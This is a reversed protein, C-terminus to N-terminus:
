ESTDLAHILFGPGGQFVHLRVTKLVEAMEDADLQVKLMPVEISSDQEFLIRKTLDYYGPKGIRLVHDGKYVEYGALPTTGVLIGDLEVLAPDADTSITLKIRPRSDLHTQWKEVAGVIVSISEDIAQEMLGMVEDESLVTTLQPTQRVRIQAAGDAIAIVEGDMTSQAELAVRMTIRSFEAHHGGQNVVEKGTSFSLITGRILADARLAQAANLVSPKTATPEGADTLNQM